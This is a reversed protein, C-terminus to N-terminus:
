ARVRWDLGVKAVRSVALLTGGGLLVLGAFLQAAWYSGDKMQVLAGGIPSGTLTALSVITFVMGMRTGAKSLDTTLSSLTAPFLSQIGAACFGYVCGWAILGGYSNVRMWAIVLIGVIFCTPVLLNLPGVRGDAYYNPVLRGPMGVANMIIVMNFATGQDLGIQTRAFASIYFFAFYLGWFNLFMGAAFLVYTLEKFAAWEVIPGAKRPKLRPKLIFNVSGLTVLTILGVTRMTWAFGVQPLLTKVVVPIVIGGTASGSAAIGLAFSKKKQFYTSCLAMSPCFLMGGGIGVCLGHSLFIQWYTRACSATFMGLCVMISGVFYMPRFYGADLARGTFTGLFFLLFIQISGVWSITSPTENFAEVYYAQFVGFANIYGWTNFITLHVGFVMLWAQWGGDPPKEVEVPEVYPTADEHKSETDSM